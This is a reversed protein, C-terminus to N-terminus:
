FFFFFSSFINEKKCTLRFTHLTATSSHWCQYRLRPMWVPPAATDRCILLLQYGRHDARRHISLLHPSLWEVRGHPWQYCWLAHCVCDKKVRRHPPPLLGRIRWVRNRVVRVRADRAPLREAALRTGDSALGLKSNIQPTEAAKLLFPPPATKLQGWSRKMRMGTMVTEPKETSLPSNRMISNQFQGGHAVSRRRTDCFLKNLLRYSQVCSYNKSGHATRLSVMAVPTRCRRFVHLVRWLM